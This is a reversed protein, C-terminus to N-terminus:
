TMDVDKNEDSNNNNSFSSDNESDRNGSKEIACDNTNNSQSISDSEDLKKKKKHRIKRGLNENLKSNYIVNDTQMQKEERERKERIFREKFNEIKM